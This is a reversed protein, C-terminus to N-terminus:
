AKARGTLNYWEVKIDAWLARAEQHLEQRTGWVALLVVLLVIGTVAGDMALARGITAAGKDM